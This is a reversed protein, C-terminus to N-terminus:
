TIKKFINLYACFFWFINLPLYNNREFCQFSSLCWLWKQVCICITYIPFMTTLLTFELEQYIFTKLCNEWKLHWHVHLVKKIQLFVSIMIKIKIFINKKFKSCKKKVWLIANFLLYLIQETLTHGSYILNIIDCTSKKCHMGPETNKKQKNKTEKNKKTKTKKQLFLFSFFLMTIRNKM